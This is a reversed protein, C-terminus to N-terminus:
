PLHSNTNKGGGHMRYMLTANERVSPSKYVKLEILTGDRAPFQLLEIVVDRTRDPGGPPLAADADGAMERFAPFDPAAYIPEYGARIASEAAAYGANKESLHGHKPLPKFDGTIDAYQPQPKCLM